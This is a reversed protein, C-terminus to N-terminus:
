KGPNSTAVVQGKSFGRIYAVLNKVDEDTARGTDEPPMNGNGNRIISFLNNDPTNTLTKQDTLDPLSLHMAWAVGTKGRGDNGHCMACDRSYITKALVHSDAMQAQQDANPAGRQSITRPNVISVSASLLVAPILLSPRIM